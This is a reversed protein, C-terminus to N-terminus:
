YTFSYTYIADFIVSEKNNSSFKLYYSVGNYDFLYSKSRINDVDDLLEIGYIGHLTVNRKICTSTFIDKFVDDFSKNPIKEIEIYEKNNDPNYYKLTYEENVSEQYDLPISIYGLEDSGIKKQENIGYDELKGEIYSYEFVITANQSYMDIKILKNKENAKKVLEIKKEDKSKVDYFDIEYLKILYQELDNETMDATSYKIIEQTRLVQFNKINNKGTVVYLTPIVNDGFIINEKVGYDKTMKFGLGVYYLFGAICIFVILTLLNNIKLNKLKIEKDTLINIYNKYTEGCYPCVKDDIENGCKNCKM